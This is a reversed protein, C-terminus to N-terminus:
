LARSRNGPTARRGAHRNFRRTGGSHFSSDDLPGIIEGRQLRSPALQLLASDYGHLVEDPRLRAGGGERAFATACAQAWIFHQMPVVAGQELQSWAAQLATLNNPRQVIRTKVRTASASEVPM